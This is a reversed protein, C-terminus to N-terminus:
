IAWSVKLHKVTKRAVVRFRKRWRWFWSKGAEGELSPMMEPDYGQDLLRQKLYQARALFLPQHVRCNYIQLCDIFWDYLLQGLEPCKLANRSAAKSRKQTSEKDGLMGQVTTAGKRLAIIHHNLSKM